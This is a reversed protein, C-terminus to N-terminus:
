AIPIYTTVHALYNNVGANWRLSFMPALDGIGSVSDNTGGSVAFGKPGLSGTLTAGAFSGGYPIALAVNAQAGLIPMPLTYSPIALYLDARGDLTANLNGNFNVTLGGRTVQRSFVLNGGGGVSPAIFVSAFSFGPSQPTAALSGFFGPVWMSIGAEDARAASMSLMCLTSLAFLKACAWSSISRHAGDSLISECQIPKM